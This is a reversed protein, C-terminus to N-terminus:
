VCNFQTTFFFNTFLLNYKLTYTNKKKYIENNNVKEIFNKKYNVKNKILIM